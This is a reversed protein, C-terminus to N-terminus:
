LGDRHSLTTMNLWWSVYSKCLRTKLELPGVDGLLFSAALGAMLYVNLHSTSWTNANKFVKWGNFPKLPSSNYNFIVITNAKLSCFGFIFQSIYINPKLGFRFILYSKRSLSYYINFNKLRMWDPWSDGWILFKCAM